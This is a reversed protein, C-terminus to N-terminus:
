TQFEQSTEAKGHSDAGIGATLFLWHAFLMVAAAQRCMWCEQVYFAEFTSLITWEFFLEVILEIAVYANNSTYKM